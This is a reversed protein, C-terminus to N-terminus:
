GILRVLTIARLKLCVFDRDLEGYYTVTWDTRDTISKLPESVSGSGTPRLM